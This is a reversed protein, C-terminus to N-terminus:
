AVLTDRIKIEATLTRHVPCMAAIQLLRAHQEPGLPGFVHIERRIESIHGEETACDACDKAHIRDHTLTVEVRELPWGKRKAYMLLTMSTCAGLSALLLEYPTPGADAGGVDAPEDATLTHGRATWRHTFGEGSEVKVPHSM